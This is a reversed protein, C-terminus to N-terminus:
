IDNLFFFNSCSPDIKRPSNRRHSSLNTDSKIDRTSHATESPRCCKGWAPWSLQPSCSISRVPPLWLLFIKLNNFVWIWLDLYGWLPWFPNSWLNPTHLHKTFFILYLINTKLVERLKHKEIYRAYDKKSLEGNGIFIIGFSMEIGMNEIARLM